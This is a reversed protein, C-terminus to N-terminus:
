DNLFFTCSMFAKETCEEVPLSRQVRTASCKGLKPCPKGSLTNIRVGFRNECPGNHGNIGQCKKCIIYTEGITHGSDRLKKRLGAIEQYCGCQIQGSEPKCELLICAADPICAGSTGVKPDTAAARQKTM